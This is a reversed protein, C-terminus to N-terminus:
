DRRHLLVSGLALAAVGAAIGFGPGDTTTETKPETDDVVATPTVRETPTPTATQTETDLTVDSRATWEASASADPHFEETLTRTAYVVSRPAPQNLYNANVVVTANQAGATTSAYPEQTALGAMEMWPQLVLVEPDLELILEDSLQPYGTDNRAAVNEGGAATLVSDIFTEGGVVYGSGLPALVRPSDEDETVDRATEVNQMMWTNAEAAGECNGTLKGTMTTKEAVDEISTAAEFKYVTMGAERLKAVTEDSVINAALVLDAETGVVTEVSYGYGSASVNTRSEAGALYTAHQDLGVVQEKGGIEWMTQAASPGLTTVTEPPEEITVETGTADTATYPFSCEHQSTV